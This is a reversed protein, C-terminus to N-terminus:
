QGRGGGVAKMPRPRMAAMPRQPPRMNFNPKPAPQSTPKKIVPSVPPTPATQITAPIAPSSTTSM